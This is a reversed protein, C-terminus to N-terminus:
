FCPKLLTVKTYAVQFGMREYNRQSQSGPAVDATALDCGAAVALSLRARILKTQLGEARFPPLTGDCQLIALGDRLDLQAGAAPEAGARVILSRCTPLAFLTRGLDRGMATVEGFFAEAMSHSWELADAAVEIDSDPASRDAETLVRILTNEMTGFEYGRYALNTFLSADAFPTLSITVPAMREAYFHEIEDLDFPAYGAGRVQTLPSEENLFVAVGGGAPIAAAESHPFLGRHAQVADWGLAASAQELRIALDRGAHIM